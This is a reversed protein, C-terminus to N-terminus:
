GGNTGILSGDLIVDLRTQSGDFQFGECGLVDLLEVIGTMLSVFASFRERGFGDLVDM